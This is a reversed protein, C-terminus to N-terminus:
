APTTGTSREWTRTWATIRTIGTFGLGAYVRNSPNEWGTSVTAHVAGKIRSRNLGEAMTASALGRRRHDPHTCVPEVIALRNHTDLTVGSHAVITGTGDTAVIQLDADFSPSREFNLLADPGFDHGFAANIVDALGAADGPDGRVISRITYAGDVRDPRLDATLEARRHIEGWSRPEYGREHLMSSRLTDDAAVFTTLNSSGNESVALVNEAWDIMASELERHDPDIELHVDGRGEPHAVGVIAGDREWIRVNSQPETLVEALDSPDEHWYRGEWRRIEWNTTHRSGAYTRALFTRVAMVDTMGHLPRATISTASPATM